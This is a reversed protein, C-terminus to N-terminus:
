VPLNNEPQTYVCDSYLPDYWLCVRGQRDAMWQADMPPSWILLLMVGVDLTVLDLRLVLATLVLVAVTIVM